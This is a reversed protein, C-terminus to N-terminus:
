LCKGRHRARTPGCGQVDDRRKRFDPKCRPRRRGGLDPVQLEVRLEQRGARCVLTCACPRRRGRCATVPSGPKRPKRPQQAHRTPPRQVGHVTAVGDRFLSRRSVTSSVDVTCRLLPSAGRQARPGPRLGPAEASPSAEWRQVVADHTSGTNSSILTDPLVASHEQGLVKTLTRSPPSRLEVSASKPLHRHHLSGAGRLRTLSSPDPTEQSKRGRSTGRPTASKLPSRRTARCQRRGEAGGGGSSSSVRESCTEEPSCLTLLPRQPRGGGEARLDAPHRLGGPAEGPGPGRIARLARSSRPLGQRVATPPGDRLGRRPCRACGLGSTLVTRLSLGPCGLGSTLVTSPCQCCTAGSGAPSSPALM